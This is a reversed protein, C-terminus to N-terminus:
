VVRRGRFRLHLEVFAEAEFFMGGDQSLRRGTMRLRQVGPVAFVRAAVM